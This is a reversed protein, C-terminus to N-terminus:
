WFLTKGSARSLLCATCVREEAKLIGNWDARKSPLMPSTRMRAVSLASANQSRQPAAGQSQGQPDNPNRGPRTLPRACHAMHPMIPGPLMSGREWHLDCHDIVLKEPGTELAYCLPGDQIYASCDCPVERKPQDSM